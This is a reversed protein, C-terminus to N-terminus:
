SLPEGRRIARKGRAIATCIGQLFSRLQAKTFVEDDRMEAENIVDDLLWKGLAEVIEDNTVVIPGDPASM